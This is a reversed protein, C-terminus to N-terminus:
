GGHGTRVPTEAALRGDAMRRLSSRQIKMGNASQTVPFSDVFWVRAPVKYPAMLRSTEAILGDANISADPAPIVFAACRMKGDVNVSVVQADAVGDIGKLTDEIEAPMVLFGSLRMADDM